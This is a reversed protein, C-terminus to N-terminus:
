LSIMNYGGLWGLCWGLQLDVKSDSILELDWSIGM